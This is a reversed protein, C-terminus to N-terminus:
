RAERLQRRADDLQSHLEEPLPMLQGRFWLRIYEDIIGIEVDLEEIAYRGHDNPKVVRYGRRTLRHLNLEQEDPFFTLYYPIKLHTEYKEYSDEYDKRKNSKSVTELVWTPKVPQLPVNFSGRARIPTDHVVIMNDPVVGRITAPKGHPYQILLEGFCQFAPWAQHILACSADTIARQRSQATSEMYHELPLASQYAVEAAEYDRETFEQPRTKGM